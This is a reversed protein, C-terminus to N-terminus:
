GRENLIKKARSNCSASSPAAIGAKQKVPEVTSWSAGTSCVDEILYKTETVATPVNTAM